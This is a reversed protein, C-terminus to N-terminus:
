GVSIESAGPAFGPAPSAEAAMALKSNRPARFLQMGPNGNHEVRMEVLKYDRSGLTQSILRAKDRFANIAQPILEAETKRRAEDSVSFGIQSIQLSGQLQGILQSAREIDRSELRIEARGRWGTIRNNDYLPWTSLQGSSTKVQSVAKAANLATAIRENLLAALRAPGLTTLPANDLMAQGSDPPNLGALLSLVSSKGAGNAGLLAVIGGKPVTLSVGAVALIAGDYIVEIDNVSLLSPSASVAATQSM